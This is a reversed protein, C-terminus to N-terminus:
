MMQVGEVHVRGWGVATGTLETLSSDARECFAKGAGTLVVVRNDPDRSIDDFVEPLENHVEMSWILSDGESHLVVELVGDRDRDFRVHSYRDRYESLRSRAM